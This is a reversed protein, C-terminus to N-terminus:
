YIYLLWQPLCFLTYGFIAVIHFRYFYIHRRLIKLFLYIEKNNKFHSKNLSILISIRYYRSLVYVSNNFNTLPSIYSFFYAYLNIVLQQSQFHLIHGLDLYTSKSTHNTCNFIRVMFEVISVM